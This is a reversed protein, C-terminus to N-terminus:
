ITRTKSSKEYVVLAQKLCDEVNDDFSLDEILEPTLWLTKRIINDHLTGISYCHRTEGGMQGKVTKALYVGDCNKTDKTVVHSRYQLSISDITLKNTNCYYNITLWQSYDQLYIDQNDSTKVIIWISRRDKDSLSRYVNLFQDKGFIYNM